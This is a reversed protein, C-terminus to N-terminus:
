SNMIFPSRGTVQAKENWQLHVRSLVYDDDPKLYRASLLTQSSSQNECVCQTRHATDIEKM